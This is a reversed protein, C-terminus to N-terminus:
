NLTKLKKTQRENKQAWSVEIGHTYNAHGKVRYCASLTDDYDNWVSLAIPFFDKLMDVQKQRFADRSKVDDLADIKTKCELFWDVIKRGYPHNACDYAYGLVSLPTLPIDLSYPNRNMVDEVKHSWSMLSIFYSDKGNKAAYELKHRITCIFFETLDDWNMELKPCAFEDRAKRTLEQLVSLM